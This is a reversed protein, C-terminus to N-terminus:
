YQQCKESDANFISCNKIKCFTVLADPFSPADFIDVPDSPRELM